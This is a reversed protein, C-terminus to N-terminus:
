LQCREEIQDLKEKLTITTDTSSPQYRGLEYPSTHETNLIEDVTFILKYKKLYEPLEDHTLCDVHEGFPYSFSYVPTKFKEELIIKPKLLEIYQESKSLKSPGVSIHTHTHVGISHGMQIMKKIKQETLHMLEFADPYDKLLTNKYIDILIKRAIDHHLTYKFITKIKRIINWQDDEGKKFSIQFQNDVIDFKKLSIRYEEIFKTIGYKALCYHIITPNGPLKEDIICTPVFFIANINNETLIKAAEYHDSLGDDFTILMGTKSYNVNQDDHMLKIIDNTNIMTYNKKLMQINEEFVEKSTGLIKPFDNQNERV